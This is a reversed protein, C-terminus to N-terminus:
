RIVRMLRCAKRGSTSVCIEASGRARGYFAGDRLSQLVEANSSTWELPSGTPADARLQAIGGLKVTASTSVIHIRARPSPDVSVSMEAAQKGSRATLTASGAQLGARVVGGYGAAVNPDTTEWRYAGEPLDHGDSLVRVNVRGDPDLRVKEPVIRLSGAVRVTVHLSGGGPSSLLVDGNRHAVINGYGDVSVVSPDSSSLLDPAATSGVTVPPPVPTELEALILSRQRFAIYRRLSQSGEALEPAEIETDTSRNCGQLGISLLAASIGAIRMYNTM